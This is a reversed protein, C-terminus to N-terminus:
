LSCAVYWYKWVCWLRKNDTCSPPTHGKETVLHAHSTLMLWCGGAVVAPPPVDSWTWDSPETYFYSEPSNDKPGLPLRVWLDWRLKLRQQHAPAPGRQLHTLPPYCPSLLPDRTCFVSVDFRTWIGDSILPFPKYFLLILSNGLHLVPQYIPPSLMRLSCIVICVHNGALIM